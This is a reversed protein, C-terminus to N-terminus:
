RPDSADRILLQEMINPEACAAPTSTCKSGLQCCFEGRARNFCFHSEESSVLTPVGDQHRGQALHVRRPPPREASHGSLGCRFSKSAQRQLKTPRGGGGDFSRPREGARPRLPALGPYRPGNPEPSLHFSTQHLAHGVESIMTTLEVTDLTALDHSSDGAAKRRVNPDYKRTVPWSHRSVLNAVARYPANFSRRTRRGLAEPRARRRAVFCRGNAM